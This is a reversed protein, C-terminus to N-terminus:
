KNKRNLIDLEGVAYRIRDISERDWSKWEDTHKMLEVIATNLHTEASMPADERKLESDIINALIMAANM